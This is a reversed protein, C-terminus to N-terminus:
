QGPYFELARRDLEAFFRGREETTLTEFRQSIANISINLTVDSPLTIGEGGKIKEITQMILILDKFSAGSDVRNKLDQYAKARLVELMEIDKILALTAIKNSRERVGPLIETQLRNSWCEKMAMKSVVVETWGFQKATEAHSGCSVWYRFAAEKQELPIQGKLNYQRKEENLGTAAQKSTRRKM